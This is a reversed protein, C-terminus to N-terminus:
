RSTEEDMSCSTDIVDATYAIDGSDDALLRDPAGDVGADAVRAAASTAIGRIEQARERIAAAAPGKGDWDALLGSAAARVDGLLGEIRDLDDLTRAIARRSGDGDDTMADRARELPDRTGALLSAMEGAVVVVWEVSQRLVADLGATVISALRADCGASGARSGVGLLGAMTRM